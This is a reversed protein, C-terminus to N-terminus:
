AKKFFTDIVEDLFRIRNAIGYYDAMLLIIMVIASIFFIILSAPFSAIQFIALIFGIEIPALIAQFIGIEHKASTRYYELYYRFDEKEEESIKSLIRNDFDEKWANHCNIDKKYYNDYNKKEDKFNFIQNNGFSHNKIKRM